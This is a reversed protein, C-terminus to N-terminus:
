TAWCNQVFDGTFPVPGFYSHCEHSWDLFLLLSESHSHASLDMGVGRQTECQCRCLAIYICFSSLWGLGTCGVLAAKWNM